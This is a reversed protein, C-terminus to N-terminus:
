WSGGAGGGGSITGGGYATTPAAIVLYGSYVYGTVDNLHDDYRKIKVWGNADTAAIVSGVPQGANFSGIVNDSKVAPSSRFKLNNTTSDVPTGPTFPKKAPLGPVGGVVDAAANLAEITKPKIKNWFIIVLGIIVVAVALLPYAYRKM